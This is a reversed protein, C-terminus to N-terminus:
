PARTRGRWGVAAARLAPKDNAVAGPTVTTHRQRWSQASPSAPMGGLLGAAQWRNRWGGVVQTVVLLAAGVPTSGFWDVQRDLILARVAIFLCMITSFMLVTLDIM